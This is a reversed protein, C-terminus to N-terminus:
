QAEIRLIQILFFVTSLCVTFLDLVSQIYFQHPNPSPKIHKLFSLPRLSSAPAKERYRGFLPPWQYPYFSQYLLLNPQLSHPLLWPQLFSLFNQPIGSFISFYLCWTHEMQIQIRILPITQFYCHLIILISIINCVYTHMCDYLSLIYLNEHSAGLALNQLFRTYLLLILFSSKDFSILHLSVFSSSHLKM